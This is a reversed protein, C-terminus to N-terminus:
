TNIISVDQYDNVINNSFNNYLEEAKNKSEVIYIPALPTVFSFMSSLLYRTLNNNVIIIARKLKDYHECHLRLDKIKNIFILINYCYQLDLISPIYNTTNIILTFKDKKNFKYCSEWTDTFYDVDKKDKITGHLNIYMKPYEDKYNIFQSM